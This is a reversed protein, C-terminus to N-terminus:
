DLRDAYQGHEWRRVARGNEDVEFRVTHLEEGKRSLRRFVHNGEPKLDVSRDKLNDAFVPIERLGESTAATAFRYVTNPRGYVGQYASFDKVEKAATEDTVEDSDRTAAALLPAQTLTLINRALLSPSVDNINVMAVIALKDQPRTLFATRYGPCYGGHGVWYESGVKSLAFGLGWTAGDLDPEVWHTREMERLTTAKLVEEGGNELLRFQWSAFRALDNASSAFGAAPAVANVTYPAIETRKGSEDRMEYGVAFEKGYLKTPLESTTSNMELPTLINGRIYDHFDEGSAAAIAEGALSLGLNSYQFREYPRYLATQEATGEQLTRRDPFDVDSWYPSVAERPLGAVHSLIARLTVPEEQEEHAPLAYWPLLDEIPADLSLKGADRLQMVGIGTFLKSVSCVSYRTDPTAPVKGKVRAYGFGKKWVTEQDHVLAFSAGPVGDYSMQASLWQEALWLGGAVDPDSALESGFAASSHLVAAGALALLRKSDFLKSQRKDM